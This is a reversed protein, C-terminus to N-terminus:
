GTPKPNVRAAEAIEKSSRDVPFGEVRDLLGPLDVLLRYM